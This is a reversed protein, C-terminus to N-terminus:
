YIPRIGFYVEPSVETEFSIKGVVLMLRHSTHSSQLVNDILLALM